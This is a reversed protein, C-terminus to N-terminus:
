SKLGVFESIISGKFEDKMKGFLKKILLILSSQIRHITVSILCIKTKMFIKMFMEQKLKMSQVTEILLCCNLM